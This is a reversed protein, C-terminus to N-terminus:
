SALSKAEARTPAAFGTKLARWDVPVGFIVGTGCGGNARFCTTVHAIPNAAQKVIRAAAPAYQSLGVLKRFGFLM